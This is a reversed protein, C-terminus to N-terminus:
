PRLISDHRVVERDRQGGVATVAALLHRELHGRPGDGHNAVRQRRRVRRRVVLLCPRTRPAVPLVRASESVPERPRPFPVLRRGLGKLTERTRSRVHRPRQLHRKRLLACVVRHLSRRHRILGDRKGNTAAAATAGHRQGVNGAHHEMAVIPRTGVIAAPHELVNVHRAVVQRRDGQRLRLVRDKGSVILGVWVRQKGVGVVHISRGPSGRDDADDGVSRDRHLRTCARTLRGDTSHAFAEGASQGFAPAIDLKFGAIGSHRNNSREHTAEGLVIGFTRDPEHRFHRGSWRGPLSISQFGGRIKRRGWSPCGGSYNRPLACVHHGM